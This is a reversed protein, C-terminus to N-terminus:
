EKELLFKIKRDIEYKLDCGVQDALAMTLIVIDALESGLGVPRSQGDISGECIVGTTYDSYAELVESMIHDFYGKIEPHAGM